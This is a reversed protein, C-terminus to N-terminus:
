KRLLVNSQRSPFSRKDDKYTDTYPPFIRFEQFVLNNVMERKFGNESNNFFGYFKDYVCKYWLDSLENQLKPKLKSFFENEKLKCFDLNWYQEFFSNMHQVYDFSLDKDKYARGLNMQWINREEEEIDYLAHISVDNTM